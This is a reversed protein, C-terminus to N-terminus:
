NSYVFSRLGLKTQENFHIPAAAKSGAVEEGLAM